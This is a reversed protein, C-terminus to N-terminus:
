RGELARELAAVADHLSDAAKPDPLESAGKALHGGIGEALARQRPSLWELPSRGAALAANVRSAQLPTLPLARLPSRRLTHLDDKPAHAFSQAETVELGAKAALRGHKPTRVHVRRVCGAARIQGFLSELRDPEVRLEVVERGAMWGTRTGSVADLAGLCAEGSWFCGMQAYVREFARDEAAVLALWRPVELKKARRAAVMHRALAGRRYDGALRPTLPAGEGDVFRVVPNNWSPEGFRELAAGDAGGRNNYIAVPVFLTEAAEVLLPHRLVAQGYRVCTSCGPVEDFLILVPRQSARSEALAADLDRGWSVDGLEPVATLLLLTLASTSM